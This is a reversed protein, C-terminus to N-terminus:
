RYKGGGVKRGGGEGRGGEKGRRGEGLHLQTLSPQQDGSVQRDEAGRVGHGRM